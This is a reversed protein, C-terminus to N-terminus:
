APRRLIGERGLAQWRDLQAYDPLHRRCTPCEVLGRRRLLRIAEILNPPPVPKDSEFLHRAAGWVAAEAFAPLVERRAQRNLEILARCKQGMYLDSDAIERAAVQYNALVALIEDVSDADPTITTAAQTANTATRSTRDAAPGGAKELLSV